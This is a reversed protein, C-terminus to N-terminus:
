LYAVALMLVAFLVVLAITPKWDFGDSSRDTEIRPADIIPMRRGGTNGNTHALQLVLNTPETQPKM